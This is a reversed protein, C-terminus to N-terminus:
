RHFTLTNTPSVAPGWPSCGALGRQGHSKGPLFVLTPQCKRRCPIKRVWPGSGHTRCQHNFEKGSLWQSARHITLLMRINVNNLMGQFLSYLIFMKNKRWIFYMLLFFLPQHKCLMFDKTVFM